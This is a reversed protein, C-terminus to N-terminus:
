VHSFHSLMCAHKGLPIPDGQPCLYVQSARMEPAWCLAQWPNPPLVTLFIPLLPLHSGPAMDPLVPDGSTRPSAQLGAGAAVVVHGTQPRVNKRNLDCGAPHRARGQVGQGM